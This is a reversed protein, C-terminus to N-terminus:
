WAVLANCLHVVRVYYVNCDIKLPFSRFLWHFTEIILTFVWPRVSFFWWASPSTIFNSEESQDSNFITALAKDLDSMNPWWTKWHNFVDSISKRAMSFEILIVYWYWYHPPGPGVLVTPLLREQMCVVWVKINDQHVPTGHWMHDIIIPEGSSQVSQAIM